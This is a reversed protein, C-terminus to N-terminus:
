IPCGAGGYTISLEPNPPYQICKLPDPAASLAADYVANTNVERTHTQPSLSLLTESMSDSNLVLKNIVTPAGQPTILRVSHSNVPPETPLNLASAPDTHTESHGAYIGRTVDLLDRYSGASRIYFAACENPISLTSPDVGEGIGGATGVGVGAGLCKGRMLVPGSYVAGSSVVVKKGGQAAFNVTDRYLTRARLASIHDSADSNARPANNTSFWRTNLASTRMQPAPVLAEIRLTNSTVAAALFYEEPVEAQSATFTVEGTRHITILNGSVDITAVNSNNSVYTIAGSSNSIPRASIQFAADIVTKYSPVVFATLVPDRVSTNLFIISGAYIQFPVGLVSTSTVTAGTSDLVATGNFTYLVGNVIVTDNDNLPIYISAYSTLEQPIITVVKDNNVNFTPAKVLFTAGLINPVPVALSIAANVEAGSLRTSIQIASIAVNNTNRLLQLKQATSFVPLNTASVINANAFNAGTIIAGSFDVNTLTAGTFSTGALIAGVLSAGSLDAGAFSTGPAVTQGALSVTLGNSTIMASAYQATEAQTATITVKGASVLTIVGTNPEITAIGTNSSSYTIAGNSATTPATVAFPAAGYM